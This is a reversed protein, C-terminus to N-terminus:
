GKSEIERETLRSAVLTMMNFQKYQKIQATVKRNRQLSRNTVAARAKRHNTEDEAQPLPRVSTLHAVLGVLM